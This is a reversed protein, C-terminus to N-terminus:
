INHHLPPCSIDIDDFSSMGMVAGIKGLIIHNSIKDAFDVMDHYPMSGNTELIDYCDTEIYDSVVSDIWSEVVSAKVSEDYGFDDIDDDVILPKFNLPAEVIQGDSDLM